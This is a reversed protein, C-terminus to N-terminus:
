KQIIVQDQFHTVAHINKEFVTKTHLVSKWQEIIDSFLPFPSTQTSVKVSILIEVKKSKRMKREYNKM